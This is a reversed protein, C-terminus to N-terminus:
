EVRPEYRSTNKGTLQINTDGLLWGIDARRAVLVEVRNDPITSGTCSPTALTALTGYTRQESQPLSTSPSLGAIFGPGTENWLKVCVFYESTNGVSLGASEVAATRVALFWADLDQVNTSSDVPIPYTAAFRSAERAAFTVSLWREFAFGATIIGFVMTLFIPLILAFEVAAAGRDGRARRRM